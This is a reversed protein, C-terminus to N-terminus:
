RARNIPWRQSTVQRFRDAHPPPGDCTLHQRQFRLLRQKIRDAEVRSEALHLQLRLVEDALWDLFSHVAHPDYGRRVTPFHAARIRDVTPRRWPKDDNM